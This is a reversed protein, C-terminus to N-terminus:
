SSKMFLLRTAAAIAPNTKCHAAAPAPRANSTADIVGQGGPVGAGTM